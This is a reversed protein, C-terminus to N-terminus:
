RVGAIQREVIQELDSPIGVYGVNEVLVTPTGFVGLRKGDAIDSDAEAEARPDRLCRAFAATDPVGVAEAIGVWSQRGILAQQDFLRQHYPLFRDQAAACEAAIAAPKAYPHGTLPFQRVIVSLETPYRAELQRLRREINLCVPCQYDSFVVLTAPANEPGIRHGGKAYTRWDSVTKWPEIPRPRSRSYTTYLTNATLAFACFIMAYTGFEALTIKKLVIKVM